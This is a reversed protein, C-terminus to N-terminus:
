TKVEIFKISKVHFLLHKDCSMSIEVPHGVYQQKDEISIFACHYTINELRVSYNDFGYCYGSTTFDEVSDIHSLGFYYGFGFSILTIVFIFLLYVKSLKEM